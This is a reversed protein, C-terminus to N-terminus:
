YYYVWISYFYRSNNIPSQPNPDLLILPGISQILAINFTKLHDMTAIINKSCHVGSAHM